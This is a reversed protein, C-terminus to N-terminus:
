VKMSHIVHYYQPEQKELKGPGTSLLLCLASGPEQTDRVKGQLSRSVWQKNGQAVHEMMHKPGCSSRSTELVQLTSSSGLILAHWCRGGNNAPAQPLCLWKGAEAWMEHFFFM